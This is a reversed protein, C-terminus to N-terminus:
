RAKTAEDSIDGLLADRSEEAESTKAAADAVLGELSTPPANPFCEDGYATEDSGCTQEVCTAATLAGAYCKSTGDAEFGDDCDPQCSSGSALSDTCDGVSGNEPPESATM